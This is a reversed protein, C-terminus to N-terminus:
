RTPPVFPQLDPRGEASETGKMLIDVRQEAASLREQCVRTLRVGTEFVQLAQELSLEGSEMQKVAQQLQELAAEFSTSNTAPKAESM